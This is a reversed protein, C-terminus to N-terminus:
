NARSDGVSAIQVASESRKKLALITGPMDIHSQRRILIQPEFFGGTVHSAYTVQTYAGVNVPELKWFGDVNKFDGSLRHWEVLKPATERIELLYEYTDPIGSPAIEHRVIKTAGHDQTVECKKLLPFVNIAHRYDTLVQWVRDPRAKVILRSVCYPKGDITEDTVKPKEAGIDASQATQCKALAANNAPVQWNFIQSGLTLASIVLCKSFMQSRHNV